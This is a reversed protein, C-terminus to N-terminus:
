KTKSGGKPASQPKSMQQNPPRNQPKVQQSPAPKAQQQPPKSGPKTQIQNPKSQPQTPKTQPKTQPQAPKTQPKTQLQGPKTQPQTPRTGPKQLFQDPRTAPNTKVGSNKVPRTAQYRVQADRYRVNVQTSRSRRPAYVQHAYTSRHYSAHHYYHHHHWNHMHYYRWPYPYWPSWWGPWYGWYWPSVYVVYVPAYMYTVCPWFWVNVYVQLYGPSYASPGKKNVGPDAPESEDAPEVIKTEGYLDEDGLIQLFASKDGDKEIEIVAIDQAESKSVQVQMVIIHATEKKDAVVRVYDVKGDGDLDLNNVVNDKSNLRKEFDDLSKSDKFTALAAELSFNDGPLGTSDAFNIQETQQALSSGALLIFCLSVATKMAKM